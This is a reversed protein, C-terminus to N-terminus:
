RQISYTIILRPKNIGTGYLTFLDFSSNENYGSLAVNRVSANNIWRKTFSSMDFKYIHRGSSDVTTQSLAYDVGDSKGDSGVSLAFLLDSTKFYDSSDMVQMIAQHISVPWHMTITNFSILGRYSIGNQIYILDPNTIISTRNVTSVYKSFGVKHSYLVEQGTTDLYYVSLTPQYSTDSVNFSYFGKIINSNTPRFILGDNLHTSDSNTSFWERLM